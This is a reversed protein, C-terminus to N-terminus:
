DETYRVLGALMLLGTDDDFLPILMRFAFLCFPSLFSFSVNLNHESVACQHLVRIIVYYNLYTVPNIPQLKVFTGSSPATHEIKPCFYVTCVLKHQSKKVSPFM